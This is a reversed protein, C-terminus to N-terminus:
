ELLNKLSELVAKIKRSVSFRSIGYIKSITKVTVGNVYRLFIIDRDDESLQELAQRLAINEIMEDESVSCDQLDESIESGTKKRYHDTCLNRAIVYLYQLELGQQHYEEKEIFRLFTEQTVDEATERNKVKIYCYKYIKDYYEKLNGTM